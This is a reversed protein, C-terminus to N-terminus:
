MRRGGFLDLMSTTAFILKRANLDIGSALFCHCRLCPCESCWSRCYLLLFAFL